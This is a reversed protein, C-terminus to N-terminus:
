NTKARALTAASLEDATFFYESGQLPFSRVADYADPKFEKMLDEAKILWKNYIHLEFAKSIAVQLAEVSPLDYKMAFAEMQARYMEQQDADLKKPVPADRLAKGFLRPLMAMRVLAAIAYDGNGIKVIDQYSKTLRGMITKKEKFDQKFTRPNKFQLNQYKTFEPELQLFRCHAVALKTSDKKKDDQTFSPRGYIRVIDACIAAKDRIPRAMKQNALFMKYRANVERWQEKRMLSPYQRLYQDLQNYELRWAREHEYVLAEEYFVSSDAPLEMKAFDKASRPRRQLAKYMKIYLGYAKLAPTAEGLSEYWLGANFQADMVRKQQTPDKAYTKAFLEYKKAATEFDAIKEYAKALDFLLDPLIRADGNKGAKRTEGTPLNMWQSTDAKPYARFMQEGAAIARDLHKAARFVYYAKALAVPAFHSNPFDKVFQLFLHAAKLDHHATQEGAALQFQSYQIDVPLDKKLEDKGKGALLRKNNEFQRAIKNLEAWQQKVYLSRVILGAASASTKDEPWKNIIYAFRKAAALYHNRHFYIVAARLRVRAEDPSSPVITTYEDCAKVLQLELSTLPQEKAKADIVIKVHSKKFEGKNQHEEVTANANTLDIKKQYVGSEIDVLKEAALLMNMASVQKFNDHSKDLAVIRYQAYAHQYSELAYLIEAYYFRMEYARESDPFNTIYEKYMDRALEYTAVSKTKIAEQHYDTVLNYLADETLSYASQIAFKNSKNVEYWASGPKYNDVLVKMEDRVKDRESLKDYSLVIKSQWEPADKDMPKQGIMYRYLQIAMTQKAGGANYNYNALGDIYKWAGGEGAYQKFFQIASNFNGREGFVRVIDRMAESKLRIRDQEGSQSGRVIVDKFHEYASDWDGSNIDCWGLMYIAYTKTKPDNLQYANEFAKRAPALKNNGFYYNGLQVFAAGLFKSQPFRAILSRYADLAQNIVRAKMRKNALQQAYEYKDYALDYYLEDLRDYNPYTKAIQIYLDVANSQYVNSKLLNPRPELGCAKQGRKQICDDWQQDALNFAPMEQTLKVYRAEEEWLNALRFLLSAQVHPDSQTPLVKKIQNIETLRAAEARDDKTEPGSRQLTAPALRTQEVEGSKEEVRKLTEEMRRTSTKRQAPPVYKRRGKHGRRHRYYAHRKKHRRYKKHRVHRGQPAPLAHAAPPMALALSLAVLFAVLRAM